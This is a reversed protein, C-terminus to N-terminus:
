PKSFFNSRDQAFNIVQQGFWDCDKLFERVAAPTCAVPADDHDVVNEWDVVLLVVFAATEAEVDLGKGKQIAAQYEVLKRRADPADVGRVRVRVPREKGEGEYILEDTSPHRLHMWAGEDAWRDPRIDTLKIAM